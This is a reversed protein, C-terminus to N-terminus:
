NNTKDTDGEIETSFIKDEEDNPEKEDSYDDDDSADSDSSQSENGNKNKKRDVYGTLQYINKPDKKVASAIQELKGAIAAGEPSNLSYLTLLNMRPLFFSKIFGKKLCHATTSLIELFWDQLTKLRGLNKHTVMFLINIIIDNNLKDLENPHRERIINLIVLINRFNMDKGYKDLINFVHHELFSANIQWSTGNRPLNNKIAAYQIDRKPELAAVITGNETDHKVLDKLEKQAHNYPGFCPVPASIKVSSPLEDLIFVPYINLIITVVQENTPETFNKEDVHECSLTAHVSATGDANESLRLRSINNSESEVIACAKQIGMNFWSLIGRPNLSGDKDVYPEWELRVLRTEEKSLDPSLQILCRHSPMEDFSRRLIQFANPKLPRMLPVMCEYRDQTLTRLPASRVVSKRDAKFFLKWEATLAYATSTLLQSLRTAFMYMKEHRRRPSRQRLVKRFYEELAPGQDEVKKVRRTFPRDPDQFASWRDDAAVPTPIEASADVM